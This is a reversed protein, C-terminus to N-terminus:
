LKGGNLNLGVFVFNEGFVPKSSMMLLLLKVARHYKRLPITEIAWKKLRIAYHSLVLIFNFGIFWYHFKSNRPMKLNCSKATKYASYM